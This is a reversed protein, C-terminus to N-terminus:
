YQTVVAGFLTIGGDSWPPQVQTGTVRLTAPQTLDENWTHPVAIAPATHEWGITIVRQEAAGVRILTARIMCTSQGAGSRAVGGLVKDNLYLSFARYDTGAGATFEGWALVDLVAGDVALQNAPLALTWLDVPTNEPANVPMVVQFRQVGLTRFSSAGPTNAPTLWSAGTPSAPDRTLLDGAIGGDLLRPENWANPGFKTLDGSDPFTSRWAPKVVVPDNM